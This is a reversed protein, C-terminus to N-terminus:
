NFGQEKEKRSTDQVFVKNEELVMFWINKFLHSLEYESKMAEYLIKPTLRKAKHEQAYLVAIDIVEAVVYEIVAAIFIAGKVGVRKAYRGEKLLRAFKSVRFILECRDSIRIKQSAKDNAKVM